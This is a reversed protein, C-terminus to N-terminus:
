PSNAWMKSTPLAVTVLTKLVQIYKIYETNPWGSHRFVKATFVFSKGGGGFHKSLLHSLFVRNTISVVDNSTIKTLSLSKEDFKQTSIYLFSMKIKVSKFYPLKLQLNNVIKNMYIIM